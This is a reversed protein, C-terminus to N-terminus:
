MGNLYGSTKNLSWLLIGQMALPSINASKRKLYDLGAFVREAAVNDKPCTQTERM